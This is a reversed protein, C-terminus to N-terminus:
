EVKHFTHTVVNNTLATPAVSFAHTLKLARRIILAGYPLNFLFESINNILIWQILYVTFLYVNTAIRNVELVEYKKMYKLKIWNEKKM